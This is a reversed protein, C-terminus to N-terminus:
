LYRLIYSYIDEWNCFRKIREGDIKVNQNHNADFLIGQIEDNFNDINDDILLDGMILQKYHTSILKNINIKPFWAELMKAKYSLNHPSTATVFFIDHGLDQLKPIYEIADRKPRVTLWFLEDELCSFIESKSLTPFAKTMDWEKIDEYSVNTGYHCNLWKIWADCLNWITDDCDILIIM